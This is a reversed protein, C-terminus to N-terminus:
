ERGGGQGAGLAEIARAIADRRARMLADSGTMSAPDQVIEDPVELLARAKEAEEKLASDDKATEIRQALLTLYAHDELGDRLAKLRITPLAAGEEMPNPLTLSGHGRYSGLGKTWWCDTTGGIRRLSGSRGNRWHDVAWHLLGGIQFKWAAWTILRARLLDHEPELKWAPDHYWWIEDGRELLERALARKKMWDRAETVWIDVTGVLERELTTVVMSRIEPDAERILGRIVRINGFRERTPEDWSYVYADQLLGEGRLWAACQRHYRIIYASEEDDYRLNANSFGGPSFVGGSYAIPFWPLEMLFRTGGAERFERLRKEFAPKVDEFDSFEHKKAKSNHIGEPYLFGCLRRGGMRHEYILKRTGPLNAGFATPLSHRRPVTFDYVHVDIRAELAEAVGEIEVAVIVQYDGAPTEKGAYVEVWIPQLEQGRLDFAGAPLLVDPWPTSILRGNAHLGLYGVPNWNVKAGGAGEGTEKDMLQTAEVRVRQSVRSDWLPLLVIQVAEHEDRALAIAGAKGGAFVSGGPAMGRGIKKTPPALLLALEGDASGLANGHHAALESANPSPFSPVTGVERLSFDDLEVARPRGAGLSMPAYTTFREKFQKWDYTGSGVQMHFNGTAQGDATKPTSRWIFGYSLNMPGTFKVNEGRAWVSVEYVRNAELPIDRDALRFGGFDNAVEGQGTLRLSQNGSHKVATDIQWSLGENPHLKWRVPLGEADLEEFSANEILNRGDVEEALVAHEALACCVGATVAL